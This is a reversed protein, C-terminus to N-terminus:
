VETVEKLGRSRPPSKKADNILIDLLSQKRILAHGITIKPCTKIKRYFSAKSGQFKQFAEQWSVYNEALNMIRKKDYGFKKEGREEEVICCGESLAWSRLYRLDLRLLTLASLAERESMMEEWNIKGKQKEKKEVQYEYAKKIEEISSSRALSLSDLLRFLDEKTIAELYSEKRGKMYLKKYEKMEALPNNHLYIREFTQFDTHGLRQQMLIPKVCKGYPDTNLTPLTHRFTHPTPTKNKFTLLNLRRCCDSVGDEIGSLTLSEGNVSVFLHNTKPHLKIRIESIWRKLLKATEEFLTPFSKDEKDGKLYIGKISFEFRGDTLERIDDLKLHGITSARLGTDYLIATICRDRVEKYNKWDISNLDLLNDIQDPMVFDNRARKNRPQLPLNDFPNRKLIGLDMGNAVVSFFAAFYNKAAEKKNKESYADFLKELDIKEVEEIGKKKLFNLVTLTTSIRYKRNAASLKAAKRKVQYRFKEKGEEDEFYKKTAEVHRGDNEYLILLNRTPKTLSLFRKYKFFAHRGLVKRSTINRPYLFNNVLFRISDIIKDIQRKDYPKGFRNKLTQEFAARFDELMSEDPTVETQRFINLFRGFLNVPVMSEFYRKKSKSIPFLHETAQKLLSILEDTRFPEKCLPQEFIHSDSYKNVIDYEM